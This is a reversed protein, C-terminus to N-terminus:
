SAADDNPLLKELALPRILLSRVSGRTWLRGRKTPVGLGNLRHSIWAFSRGQAHWALIKKRWPYEKPDIALMRSGRNGIALYGYPQPGDIYALKTENKRSKGYSLRRKTTRAEKEAMLLMMGFMVWGDDTSIDLNQNVFVLRRGTELFYQRACRLGDEANRFFRDIDYVVLGDCEQAAKVADQFLKRESAFCTASEVADIEKVIEIDHLVAWYQVRKRQDELSTNFEQSKSSVRYLATFRNAM